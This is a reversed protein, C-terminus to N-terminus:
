DDLDDVLPERPDVVLVAVDSEIEVGVGGPDGVADLPGHGDCWAESWVSSATGRRDGPDSWARWMAHTWGGHRSPGPPTPRLTSQTVVVIAKVRRCGDRPRASLRRLLRGCPDASVLAQGRNRYGRPDPDTTPGRDGLQASRVVPPQQWGVAPERVRELLAGQRASSRRVPDPTRSAGGRWPPTREARSVGPDAKHAAHAMCPARRASAQTPRRDAYFPDYLYAKVTAEARGLRRAIEAITLDELDPYHRALQAARRRESVRDSM